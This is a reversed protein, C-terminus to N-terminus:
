RHVELIAALTNHALYWSSEDMARGRVGEGTSGESISGTSIVKVWLM